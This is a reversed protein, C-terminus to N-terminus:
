SGWPLTHRASALLEGVSRVQQQVVEPAAGAVHVRVNMASAGVAALDQALREVLLAPDGSTGDHHFGGAQRMGAAAAQRFQDAAARAAATNPREGIWLHRIWVVPGVGGAARYRRALDGLRAPDEGGPFVLGLQLRALADVGTTSNAGGLLPVADTALAAVAPDVALGGDGRLEEALVELAARSRRIRDDFPVDLADFDTRAYGPAVAAGVRGPFRAATWAIEEAVLRPNRVGLLMPAPAAWVTRTASLLWNVALLPQPLYGPFGAHHESVTVGDFGEQEAVRGLEILHEVRKAASTQDSLHLGLSISGHGFPTVARDGTM